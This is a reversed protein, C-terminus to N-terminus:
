NSGSLPDKIILPINYTSDFMFEGKEIMRHHGMADGHDATIVIFSEEYLGKEKLFKFLEGIADDILTIYGWFKTIVEKWHAESAEM